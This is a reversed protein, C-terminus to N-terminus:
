GIESLMKPPLLHPLLIQPPQQSYFPNWVELDVISFPHVLRPKATPMYTLGSIQQLLFPRKAMPTYLNFNFFSKSSFGNQPFCLCFRTGKNRIISIEDKIPLKILLVLPVQDPFIYIVDWTLAPYRYCKLLTFEFTHNFM